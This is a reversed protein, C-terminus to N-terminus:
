GASQDKVFYKQLYKSLNACKSHVNKYNKRNKGSCLDSEIHDVLDRTNILYKKDINNREVEKLLNRKLQKTQAIVDMAAAFYLEKTRLLSLLKCTFGRCKTPRVDYIRCGKSPDFAFCPQHFYFKDEVVSIQFLSLKSADDQEELQVKNFITGDCCFGCRICVNHCEYSFDPDPHM